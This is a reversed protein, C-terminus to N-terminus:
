GKGNKHNRWYRRRCAESCFQKKRKSTVRIIRGCGKCTITTLKIREKYPGRVAGQKVGRQKQVSTVNSNILESNRQVERIRHMVQGYYESDESAILKGLDDFIGKGLYYKVYRRDFDDWLYIAGDKFKVIWEDPEPRREKQKIWDPKEAGLSWRYLDHLQQQEPDDFIKREPITPKIEGTYEKFCKISCFNNSRIAEIYIAENNCAGRTSLCLKRTQM